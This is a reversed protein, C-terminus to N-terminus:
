FSEFTFVAVPSPALFNHKWCFWVGRCPSVYV